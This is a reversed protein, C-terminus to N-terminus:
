MPMPVEKRLIETIQVLANNSAEMIRAQLLLKSDINMLSPDIEINLIQRLGNVTVYVKGDSSSGSVLTVEMKKQIEAFNFQLDKM